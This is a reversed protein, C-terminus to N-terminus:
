KKKKWGGRIDALVKERESDTVWELLYQNHDIIKPDHINKFIKWTGKFEGFQKLTIKRRFMFTVCDSWREPEHHVTSGLFELRDNELLKDFAELTNRELLKNKQATMYLTACTSHYLNVWKEGMENPDDRKKLAFGLHKGKKDVVENVIQVSIGIGAMGFCAEFIERPVFGKFTLRHQYVKEALIKFVEGLRSLPTNRLFDLVEKEM